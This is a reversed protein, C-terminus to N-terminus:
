DDRSQHKKADGKVVTVGDNNYLVEGHRNHSQQKGGNQTNPVFPSFIRGITKFAFSVLLLLGAFIALIILLFKM